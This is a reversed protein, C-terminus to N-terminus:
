VSSHFQISDVMLSIFSETALFRVDTRIIKIILYISYIGMFGFVVKLRVRKTFIACTM